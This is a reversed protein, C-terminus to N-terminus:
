SNTQGAEIIKARKLPAKSLKLPSAALVSANIWLDRRSNSVIPIESPAMGDIIRLAANDDATIVVDPQWEEISAKAQLAAQKKDAEGKRRKTNM